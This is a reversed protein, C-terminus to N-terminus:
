FFFLLIFNQSATLEIVPCTIVIIINDYHYLYLSGDKNYIIITIIYICSGDKNCINYTIVLVSDM